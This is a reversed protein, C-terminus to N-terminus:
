QKIEMKRNLKELLHDCKIKVSGETAFFGHPLAVKALTSNISVKFKPELASTGFGRRSEISLSSNTTGEDM